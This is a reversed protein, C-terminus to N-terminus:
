TGQTILNYVVSEQRRDRPTQQKTRDERSMKRLGAHLPTEDRLVSAKPGTEVCVDKM